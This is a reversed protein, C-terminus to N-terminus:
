KLLNKVTHSKVKAKAKAKVQNIFKFGYIYKNVQDPAMCNLFTAFPENRCHAYLRDIKTERERETSGVM